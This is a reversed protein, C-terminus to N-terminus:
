STQETCTPDPADTSVAPTLMLVWTYVWLAAVAALVALVAATKKLSRMEVTHRVPLGALRTM